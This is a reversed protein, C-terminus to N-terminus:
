AAREKPILALLEPTPEFWEGGPIRSAAFREHLRSELSRPGPFEAVVELRYPHGTQMARRRKEPDRGWGIKIPGGAVSQILYAFGQEKERERGLRHESADLEAQTIGHARIVANEM